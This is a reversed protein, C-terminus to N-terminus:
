DDGIFIKMEKALLTDKQMRLFEERETMTYNSWIEKLKSPAVKFGDQSSLMLSFIQKQKNIDMDIVWKAEFKPLLFEQLVYEQESPKMNELYIEFEIEPMNYITKELSILKSANSYIAMLTKRLHTHDHSYTLLENKATDILYCLEELAGILAIFYYEKYPDISNNAMAKDRLGQVVDICQTLNIIISSANVGEIRYKIPYLRESRKYVETERYLKRFKEQYDDNVLLSLNDLKRSLNTIPIFNYTALGNVYQIITEINKIAIINMSM